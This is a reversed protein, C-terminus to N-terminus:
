PKIKRRLFEEVIGMFVHHTKGLPASVRWAIGLERSPAPERFPIFCLDRNVCTARAMDPVLTIGEGTAALRMVSTLSSGQFIVEDDERSRKCYELAQDAFCHGEKLILLKEKKLEKATLSHRRAIAHRVSAAAFFKERGISRTVIGPESIPLSLIGIDVGGSKLHSLLVSTTEEYIELRISPARKRVMTIVGPLVYPAITPIAGVSLKGAIQGTEEQIDHIGQDLQDLITLAHPLFRLGSPTLKVGHASREFLQTGLEGELKHIQQSLTPQTVHTRAAARRFHLERSLAAFYRLQRLEMISVM